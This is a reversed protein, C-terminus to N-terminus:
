LLIEKNVWSIKRQASEKGLTLAKYKASLGEGEKDSDVRKPVRRVRLESRVKMIKKVM